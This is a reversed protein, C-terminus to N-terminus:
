KLVTMVLGTVILLVGVVKPLFCKEKLIFVGAAVGAILGIQRFVQVYSVNTVYNMAVLVLVYTGSAAFGAYIANFNRERRYEALKAREKQNFFIYCWLALNLIIGRTVYYTISIVPKSLDPECSRMIAQAQSDFITYGTTGCAVLVLFLMKRNFFVSIKLDSFKQQPVLLCGAFVVLMGCVAQFNLPKGIGLITTVLMTMILPFSRMIPYATSMDMIRYATVLGFCYIIDSVVSGLTMLWFEPALESFRVPSWFLSHLWCSTAITSVTAYFGVSAKSKKAFLNWTAHLMASATIFVFATFSM